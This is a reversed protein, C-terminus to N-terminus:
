MSNRCEIFITPTVTIAVVGSQGLNPFNDICMKLGYHEVSVASSDLWQNSPLLGGSVASTATAQVTSQARPKLTLVFSNDMRKTACFGSQLVDQRTIPTAADDPDFAYHILPLSYPGGTVATGAATIASGPASNYSLDFRLKVTKIRYNDFLATLESYNSVGLTALSFKLGLRLQSFASGLAPDSVYAPSASVINSNGIIMARSAADNMIVLPDGVRKFVHIRSMATSLTRSAYRRVMRSASYRRARQPPGSTYPGRSRKLGPM